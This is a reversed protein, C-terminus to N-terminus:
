RCRATKIEPFGGVTSREDAIVECEHLGEALRRTLVIDTLDYACTVWYGSAAAPVLSWTGRWTSGHTANSYPPMGLNDRPHGEYIRVAALRHVAGAERHGEWGEYKGALQEDVSICPPCALAQWPRGSPAGAPTALLTMSVILTASRM